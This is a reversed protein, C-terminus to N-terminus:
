QDVFLEVSPGEPREPFGVLRINNCRSRGEADEAWKHLANMELKVQTMQVQLEQVTGGLVALHLGRPAATGVGTALACYPGPSTERDQPM